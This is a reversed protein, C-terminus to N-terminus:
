GGRLDGIDEHVKVDHCYEIEQLRSENLERNDAEVHADERRLTRLPQEPPREGEGSNPTNGIYEGRDELTSGNGVEPGM